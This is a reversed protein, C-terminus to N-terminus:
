EYRTDTVKGAATDFTLICKLNKVSTTFTLKLMTAGSWEMSLIDKLIGRSETLEATGLSYATETYYLMRKKGDLRYSALKNPTGNYVVYEPDTTYGYPNAILKAIKSRGVLATNSLIAFTEAEKVPTGAWDALMLRTKGDIKQTVLYPYYRSFVSSKIPKPNLPKGNDLYIDQQMPNRLTCQELLFASTNSKTIDTIIFQGEVGYQLIRLKASASQQVKTLFTLLAPANFAKGHENVFFVGDALAQEETYATTLSSLPAYGAILGNDYGTAAVTFYAAFLAESGAKEYGISKIIRYEGNALPKYLSVLDARTQKAAVIYGIAPWDIVVNSDTSKIEQAYWHGAQKKELVYPAGYSLEKATNNKLMLYLSATGTKYVPYETSVTCFDKAKLTKDTYSSPVWSEVYQPKAAFATLAPLLVLACLLLAFARRICLKKQLM